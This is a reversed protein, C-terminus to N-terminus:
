VTLKDLIEKDFSPQLHDDFNNSAFYTKVEDEIYISYDFFEYYYTWLINRLISDNM